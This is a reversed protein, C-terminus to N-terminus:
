LINFLAIGAATAVNLSNAIGHMPIEICADSINIVKDSVGTIENGVIIALPKQYTFTKYDVSNHTQELCIIQVGKSQLFNALRLTSKYYKWPVYDITNLATKSIQERPPTATIGCLFLCKIRAADATRFIAGVNHMSRINDLILYIEQRPNYIISDQGGKLALNFGITRKTKIM